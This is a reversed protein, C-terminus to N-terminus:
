SPVRIKWVKVEIHVELIKGSNFYKQMSTNLIYLIAFITLYSLTDIWNVDKFLPILPKNNELFM